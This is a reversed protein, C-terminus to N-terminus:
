LIVCHNRHLAEHLRSSSSSAGGATNGAAAAGLYGSLHTASDPVGSAPGRQARLRASLDTPERPAGSAPGRQARLRVSHDVAKMLERFLAVVRWNFRASCEVYSCKWQKRVVNAVTDRSRSWAASV